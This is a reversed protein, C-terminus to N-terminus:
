SKGSFILRAKKEKGTPTLTSGGGSSIPPLAAALSRSVAPASQIIRAPLTGSDQSIGVAHDSIIKHKHEFLVDDGKTPNNNNHVPPLLRMLGNSSGHSPLCASKSRNGTGYKDKKAVQVISPIKNLENLASKRIAAAGSSSKRELIEANVTNRNDAKTLRIKRMEGSMPAIPRDESMHDIDLNNRNINMSNITFQDVFSSNNGIILEDEISAIRQANSYDVMDHLQSRISFRKPPELENRSDDCIPYIINEDEFSTDVIINKVNEQINEDLDVTINPLINLKTSKELINSQNDIYPINQFDFKRHKTQVNPTIADLSIDTTTTTTITADDVTTNTTADGMKFHRPVTPQENQSEEYGIGNEEIANSIDLAALNDNSTSEDLVETVNELQISDRLNIEFSSEMDNNKDCEKFKQRNSKYYIRTIFPHLILEDVSPRDNPIAACCTEVFSKLQEVDGIITEDNGLSPIAGNVIHYMATMPNDYESFPLKGSFMEVATCGLSWVDAKVWGNTMQIGKIVEPAMWHPTGKLGSIVSDSEFRKSAGFDALKVTGDKTLLCNACKVDRHAIGNSHLYQLGSLIQNICNAVQPEKLAGYKQYFQRLSGRDAYELLLNIKNSNKTSGLFAIVNKHQLGKMTEVEAELAKIQDKNLGEIDIQKIAVLQNTENPLLQAKYVVSSGGRGIITLAKWQFKNSNPSSITDNDNQNNDNCGIELKLLQSSPSPLLEPSSPSTIVDNSNINTDIEM